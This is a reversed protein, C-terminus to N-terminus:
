YFSFSLTNVTNVKPKSSVRQNGNASRRLREDKEGNVSASSLVKSSDVKSTQQATKQPQQQQYNELRSVLSPLKPDRRHFGTKDQYIKVSEELKTIRHNDYLVLCLVALIVLSNLSSASKLFLLSQHKTEM